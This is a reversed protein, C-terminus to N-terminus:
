MKTFLLNLGKCLVQRVRFCLIKSGRIRTVTGLSGFATNYLLKSNRTRCEFRCITGWAGFFQTVNSESVAIQHCTKIGAHYEHVTFM